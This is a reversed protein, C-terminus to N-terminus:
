LFAISYQYAFSLFIFGLFFVFHVWNQWVTTTSMIALLATYKSKFASARVQLFSGMEQMDVSYSIFEFATYQLAFHYVPIHICCESCRKLIEYGM